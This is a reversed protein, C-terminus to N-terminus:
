GEVTAYDSKLARAHEEAHTECTGHCGISYGSLGRARRTFRIEVTPKAGCHECTWGNAAITAANGPRLIEVSLVEGLRPEPSRIGACFDCKPKPSDKDAYVSPALSSCYCHTVSFSETFSARIRNPM